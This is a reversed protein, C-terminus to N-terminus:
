IRVRESSGANSYVVDGNRSAGFDTPLLLRALLLTSMLGISKDILKFLVMWMAGSAMKRRLDSM